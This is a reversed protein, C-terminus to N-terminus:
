QTRDKSCVRGALGTIVTGFDVHSVLSSVVVIMAIRPLQRVWTETRQVAEEETEHESPDPLAFIVGCPYANVSGYSKMKRGLSPLLSTSTVFSNLKLNDHPPIDDHQTPFKRRLSTAVSTTSSHVISAASCGVSSSCLTSAHIASSTVSTKISSALEPAVKSPDPEQFRNLFTPWESNKITKVCARQQKMLEYVHREEPTWNKLPEEGSDMLPDFSEDPSRELPPLPKLHLHDEGEIEFERESMYQNERLSTLIDVEEPVMEEALVQIEQQLIESAVRRSQSVSLRKSASMGSPMILSSSSSDDNEDEEDEDEGLHDSIKDFGQDFGNEEEEDEEREVEEIM